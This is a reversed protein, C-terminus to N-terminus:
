EEELYYSRAVDEALGKVELSCYSKMFAEYVLMAKSKNDGFGTTTTYFQAIGTVVMIEQGIWRSGCHEEFWFQEKTLVKALEDSNARAHEQLLMEWHSRANAYYQCIGDDGALLHEITYHM